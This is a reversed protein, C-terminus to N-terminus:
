KIYKRYSGNKYASWPFWGSHDKLQRAYNLNYEPDYLDAENLGRSPLMRIQAIGISPYATNTDGKADPNLGSEAKFIATALEWDEPFIRKIRDEISETTEEAEETTKNVVSLEEFKIPEPVEEVAEIEPIMADRTEVYGKCFLALMPILSCAFLIKARQSGKPHTRAAKRTRKATTGGKRWSANEQTRRDIMKIQKGNRLIKM